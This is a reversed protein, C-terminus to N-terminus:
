PIIVGNGSRPVPIEPVREPSGPATAPSSNGYGQGEYGYAYGQHRKTRVKNLVVGLLPTQVRQLMAVADRAQRTTTRGAQAVLLVGNCLSALGVSDSVPLVPASDIIVYGYEAALEKILIQM